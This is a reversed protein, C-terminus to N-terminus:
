WARPQRSRTMIGMDALISRHVAHPYYSDVAQRAFDACNHFLLNFQRQNPSSNFKQIFEDDQEQTTEIEFLM